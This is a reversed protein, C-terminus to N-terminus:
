PKVYTYGQLQLESVTAVGSPTIEANMNIKDKDINRGKITNACIQFTVGRNALEQVTDAHSNGKADKWGDLLFDIGKGHTVVVVEANEDGVANLHNKINRLGPGALQADNMHYLVKQQHYGNKAPKMDQGEALAQGAALAMGLLLGAIATVFKRLM